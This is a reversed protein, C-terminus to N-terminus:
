ENMCTSAEICTLAIPIWDAPPRAVARREIMTTASSAQSAANGSAGTAPAWTVVAVMTPVTRSALPAASGPTVTVGPLAAGSTDTITGVVAASTVQADASAVSLGVLCLAVLAAVFLKRSM